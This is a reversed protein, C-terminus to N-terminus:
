QMGADSTAREIVGCAIRPGAAGAPNTVYDDPGEHIVVSAGDADFLREDLRVSDNFIEINVMGSAPVHINPMDGAHRGDADMLGHDSSDPNFHGGASKFPPVCEGTEHVHFAHIGAPLFALRAHLMSGFPSPRFEVTGVAEGDPNHMRAIAGDAARVQFACVALVVALISYTIKLGNM